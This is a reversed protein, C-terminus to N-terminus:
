RNCNVPEMEEIWRRVLAVGVPDVLSRGIDPMMAGLVTTEMRYVPISEDPKGPVVDYSRGFGGKGASSPAKCVGYLFPDQNTHNLFLQSTEGEVATPSHCHACNMDLYDRTTKRLQEGTMAKAEALTPRTSAQQVQAVDELGTLWGKDSWLALQGDPAADTSRHLFRARPGIIGTRTDEGENRDHCDRCQNRQPVLYNSVQEKGDADIFSVTQVDGTVKLRADSGDKEWVYPWAVWDSEGKVLVRTEILRRPADPDRMDTPFLFSKVIIAGVPFALTGEARYSISTGPPLWVARRKEAFDSFLPMTLEYSFMEPHEELKGGRWRVLGIQSLLPPAKATPDLTVAPWADPSTSAEDTQCGAIVLGVLCLWIAHRPGKIM